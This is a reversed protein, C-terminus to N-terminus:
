DRSFLASRIKGIEAYFQENIAYIKEPSDKLISELSPTVDKVSEEPISEYEGSITRRLEVLAALGSEELHNIAYHLEEHPLKESETVPIDDKMIIRRTM